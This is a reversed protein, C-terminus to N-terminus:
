FQFIKIGGTGGREIFLRRPDYPQIRARCRRAGCWVRAQPLSQWSMANMMMELLPVSIPRRPKAPPALLRDAFLQNELARRNSTIQDIVKADYHYKKNFSFIQNFDEWPAM